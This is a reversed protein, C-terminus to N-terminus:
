RGRRAENVLDSIVGLAIDSMVAMLGVGFALGAVMGRIQGPEDITLWVVLGIGNALLLRAPWGIMRLARKLNTERSVM